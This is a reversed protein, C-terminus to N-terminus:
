SILSYGLDVAVRRLAPLLVPHSLPENFATHAPLADGAREYLAVAPKGANMSSAYLLGQIVPYAEYIARSWRRTRPRPGSNIATSAGARTPWRGTLDLLPVDAALAFCALWPEDRRLNVSRREQFVEALCTTAAEAGTAAYLIGREQEGPPEDHHDFRGGTAPGFSRFTDWTAPYRGGRFYVRWFGAGAPLVIVESSIQRLGAPDPPEPLKVM